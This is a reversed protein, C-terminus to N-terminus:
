ANPNELRKLNAQDKNHQKMLREYSARNKTCILSYPRGRRDTTMDLDCQAEKITTEVHKRVTEVAKFTWTKREPDALYRSLEACHACRCRLKSERSWNSPAEVPEAVRAHLHELCAQRLRRVAASSEVTPLETLEQVAPVLVTNLDYIKPWALLYDAARDALAKDIPTLATFLDVIFGPGVEFSRRWPPNPAARAPDGPLLEVLTTAAGALNTRRDSLWAAAARALLDGCANLSTAANGAILRELLVSARDPPLLDLAELIANNDGKDNLGRVAIDALFIGLHETDKLRSLLMLMRATDSPTKRGWPESERMPWRSLMHGALDHAQLWLPSQRSEGGTAWRDILDSLYPLTVPLGAQSLVAFIRARPWLALAARRYTREFSAGENGTAEHFHEEDPEMEDLAGPPSLEEDMVPIEGMALLSGDCGRWESLTVQRDCVEGAEFEDDDEEPESWRRGSGYADAYEAIGSERVEMLALHLDCDSQRAAAALVGAVAADVGKLAEFGLEAPTYAHELPYVLKEPGDEHPSQKDAIWTRLLKTLRAQEDAYSPPEPKPGKGRRLLNYVLTLRYGATVPLVEHVCDAYFAAFAAEAPDENHLDLRVERGKHRVLLDGGTSVSPLVLVLTAFMGPAKETDRHSVFFSGPDYVLLKYFEAVIPEAVGLGEAVRALIAKLTQAM